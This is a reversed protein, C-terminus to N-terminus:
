SIEMEIKTPDFDDVMRRLKFFGRLSPENHMMLRSYYSTFLNNLKLPEDESSFRAHQWRLVEFLGKMGFGKRGRRRLDHALTLLARYVAPNRRHYEAFMETTSNTEPYDPAVTPIPSDELPTSTGDSWQFIPLDDCRV